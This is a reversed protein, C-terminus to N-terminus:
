AGGVSLPAPRNPFLDETTPGVGVIEVRVLRYGLFSLAFAVVIRAM